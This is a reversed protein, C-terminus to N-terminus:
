YLHFVSAHFVSAHFVSADGKALRTQLPTVLGLQLVRSADTPSATCLLARGSRLEARPCSPPTTGTM